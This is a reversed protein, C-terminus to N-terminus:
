LGGERCGHSVHKLDPSKDANPEDGPEHENGEERRPKVIPDARPRPEVAGLEQVDDRTEFIEVVATPFQIPRHDPLQRGAAPDGLM